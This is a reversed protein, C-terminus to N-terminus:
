YSKTGHTCVSHIAGLCQYHVCNVMHTCVIAGLCLYHVGRNKTAVNKVKRTNRYVFRLKPVSFVSFTLFTAVVGVVFM